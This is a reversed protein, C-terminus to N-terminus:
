SYVRELVPPPPLNPHFLLRFVFFVFSTSLDVSASVGACECTYTYGDVGTCSGCNSKSM